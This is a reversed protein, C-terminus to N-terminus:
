ANNVVIGALIICGIFAQVSFPTSTFYLIGVVGILAMPISFIIILPDKFSEFQGAMVLYVLLVAMLIGVLLERFAKQQEEYDGRIIVAFDNPVNVDAIKARIDEVVSGLDRGAYNVSVTVIRERDRREIQVPGESETVSAVAQLPIAMGNKNVIALNSLQEIRKRQNEVLQVVINYEKGDQRITSAKAGGMATQVATGIQTATLGLDAAKKRDINIIYEPKGSERSIKTDTVGNVDSVLKSIMEALMQGTHLDRGRIEIGVSQDQNNGMRLLFLGQGERVRLTAGPIGTLKRRLANAVDSSSRKRKNKPVLSVRTNATHSGSTGWGSGGINSMIYVAEPVEQAIISEIKLVTSDLVEVRTGVEMEVSVRVESEDATPMLEMGVLPIMLISGILLLFSGFVVTKRHKLAWQILRGYKKEISTYIRESKEFIGDFITKRKTNKDHIKLFKSSLMPILTLASFLSCALSFSVVYALQRFMIGSMGRIFVVPFFVVLTTLTSAIVASTVQSTGKIASEQAKGGKERHHFINDLVVIANDVLMGIGLALGGFTMMNLTLGTFYVLAFTAIISVPIATAIILTSSINRLFLLLVIVAILGGLVLSNGVGNISQQIFTATNILPTIKIQPFDKNIREIERQVERAVAVTNVGSQKSVSLQIGLKSNIRVMSTIEEIGDQVDALDGVTVPVGDRVAVIASKVDELKSYEAFTRVIIEKNGKDVSGAPINKNEQKFTNVVMDPSIKLAELASTRLAVKIERLAGGRIDVSAVGDCRELRYQVQDEILQRLRASEMDGSAGLIMIPFSSMDFKRIMPRDVDDPLRGLTRDIRDRIDNVAEDLNTGWTFLVRIRSVGEASTSSLEEIGQIGALSAELPRTILEEMEQPGANGYYTIVTITPNTIEPMLDIPLRWLSFLGIVLIIIFGVTILVPRKVPLASLSNSM